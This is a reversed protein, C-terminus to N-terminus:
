FPNPLDTADLSTAEDEVAHDVSEQDTLLFCNYDEVLRQIVSAKFINDPHATYKRVVVVFPEVTEVVVLGYGFESLQSSLATYENLPVEFRYQQNNYYPKLLNFVTEDDFYHKFLYRDDVEFVNVRRNSARHFGAM